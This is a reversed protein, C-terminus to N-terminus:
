PGLENAPVGYDPALVIPATTAIIVFLVFTTLHVSSCWLCIAKIIFLEAIILYLIMGVGTVSLVLRALHIRRDASRWAAPLCLLVMPVFFVLGLMAVPIGFIESQPSQTVKECNFTSNTVCALAKPQFHTITLYISAGLGYVSLILSVLPQWRLTTM